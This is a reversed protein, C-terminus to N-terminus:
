KAHNLIILSPEFKMEQNDIYDSFIYYLDEFNAYFDIKPKDECDTFRSITKYQGKSNRFFEIEILDITIAKVFTYGELEM